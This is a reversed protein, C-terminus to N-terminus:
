HFRPLFRLCAFAVIQLKLQIDLPILIISVTECSIANMSPDKREYKDILQINPIYDNDFDIPVYLKPDILDTDTVPKTIFPNENEDNVLEFPRFLSCEDVKLSKAGDYRIEKRISNRKLRM